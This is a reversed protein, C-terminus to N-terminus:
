EYSIERDKYFQTMGTLKPTPKGALVFRGVRWGAGSSINDTITVFMSNCDQVVYTKGETLRMNFSSDNVCEVVDGVEFNNPM